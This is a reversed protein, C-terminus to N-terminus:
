SANRLLARMVARAIPGAYEGGAGANEVVVAIAVQPEDAPAFAVFWAHTEGHPNEASGTKGAVKVGAIRVRRGTGKEVVDVMM